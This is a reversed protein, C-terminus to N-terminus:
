RRATTACANHRFPAPLPQGLEVKEPLPLPTVDSVSARFLNADDPNIAPKRTKKM